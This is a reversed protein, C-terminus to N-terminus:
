ITTNAKQPKTRSTRTREPTENETEGENEDVILIAHTTGEDKDDHEGEHNPNSWQSTVRKAACWGRDEKNV